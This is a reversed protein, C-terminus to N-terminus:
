QEQSAIITQIGAAHAERATVPKARRLAPARGSPTETLLQIGGRIHTNWGVIKAREVPWVGAPQIASKKVVDHIKIPTFQCESQIDTAQTWAGTAPRSLGKDM